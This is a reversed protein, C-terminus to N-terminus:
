KSKLEYKVDQSGAKVDLTLESAANYKTPLMEVVDETIPSNPDGEYVRHKGIVKPANIEVRMKTVPVQASFKGDTIPSGGTQSQGDVPKFLVSGQKLPQGDFTVEGNVTGMAPGRSCGIGGCALVLAACLFVGDRM